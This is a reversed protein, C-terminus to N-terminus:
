ADEANQRKNIKQCELALRNQARSLSLHFKDPESAWKRYEAQGYVIILLSKLSVGIITPSPLESKRAIDEKVRVSNMECSPSSQFRSSFFVFTERMHLIANPHSMSILPPFHGKCEVIKKFRYCNVKIQTLFLFTEIVNDILRLFFFRFNM